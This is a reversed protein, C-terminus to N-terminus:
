HLFTVNNPLREFQLVRMSHLLRLCVKKKKLQLSHMYRALNSLKYWKALCHSKCDLLLINLVLVLLSVLHPDNSNPEINCSYPQLDKTKKPPKRRCTLTWHWEAKFKHTNHCLIFQVRGLPTTLCVIFFPVSLRSFTNKMQLLGILSCNLCWSRCLCLM